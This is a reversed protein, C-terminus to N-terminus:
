GAVGTSISTSALSLSGFPSGNVTVSTLPTAIVGPVGCVIGTGFPVIVTAASPVIM